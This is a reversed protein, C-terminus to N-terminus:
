PARRSWDPTECDGGQTLRRVDAGDARMTYIDFRGARSSAFVLHRGDPSWRPNENSGEGHTLRATAGSAVDVVVIDFRGERRSVYAIKDGRPSWAAADAYEEGTTLRRVNLGEVDM